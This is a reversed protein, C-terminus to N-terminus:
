KTNSDDRLSAVLDAIWQLYRWQASEENPIVTPENTIVTKFDSLDTTCKNLVHLIAAEIAKLDPGVTVKSCREDIFINRWETREMTSSDYSESKNKRGTDELIVFDKAQITINIGRDFLETDADVSVVKTMTMQEYLHWHETLPSPLRKMDYGLEVFAGSIQPLTNDFLPIMERYTPCKTSLDYKILTQCTKSLNVNIFQYDRFTLNMKTKVKTLKQLLEELKDDLEKAKNKAELHDAIAEDYLLMARFYTKEAQEFVRVQVKYDKFAADQELRDENTRVVMDQAHRYKKKSFELDEEADDYISEASFRENDLKQEEINWQQIEREVEVLEAQTTDLELKIEDILLTLAEPTSPLEDEVFDLGIEDLVTEKPELYVDHEAFGSLYDHTGYALPLIFNGISIDKLIEDWEEDSLDINLDSNAASSGTGIIEFDSEKPPPLFDQEEETYKNEDRDVDVFPDFEAYEVIVGGDAYERTWKYDYMCWKDNFEIAECETFSLRDPEVYNPDEFIPSIAFLIIIAAMGGLVYGSTKSIKIANWLVINGSKDRRKWATQKKPKDKSEEKIEKARAKEKDRHDQRNAAERRQKRDLRREAKSPSNRSSGM